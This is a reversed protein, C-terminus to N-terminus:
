DSFSLHERGIAHCCHPRSKVSGGLMRRKECGHICIRLSSSFIIGQSSPAHIRAHSPIGHIKVPKELAQGERAEQSAALRTVSAFGGGREM